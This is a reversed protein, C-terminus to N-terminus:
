SEELMGLQNIGPGPLNEVGVKYKTRTNAWEGGMGHVRTTSPPEGESLAAWGLRRADMYKQILSRPFTSKAGDPMGENHLIQRFVCLMVHGRRTCAAIQTIHTVSMVAGVTVDHSEWRCM